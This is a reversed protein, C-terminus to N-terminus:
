FNILGFVTQTFQKIQDKNDRGALKGIASNKYTRDNYSALVISIWTPPHELAVRVLESANMGFWGNGVISYFLGTNMEALRVNQTVDKLHEVFDDIGKIVGLSDIADIVADAKVNLSRSIFGAIRAKDHEQFETDSYFLCFYFYASLVMVTLQTQPDLSMRRSINESIWRSYLVMPNKTASLLIEKNKDSQIGEGSEWYRQLFGRLATFNYEFTNIVSCGDQEKSYRTSSRVDVIITPKEHAGNLKISIPHLFAPIAANKPDNDITKIDDTAKFETGTVLLPAVGGRIFSEKIGDEVKKLIVGNCAKTDYASVFISM